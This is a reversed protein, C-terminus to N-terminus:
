DSSLDQLHHVHNLRENCPYLGLNVTSNTLFSFMQYSKVVSHTKVFILFKRNFLSLLCITCHGLAFMRRFVCSSRKMLVETSPILGKNCKGNRAIKNKGYKKLNQWNM